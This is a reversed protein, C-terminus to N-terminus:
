AASSDNFQNSSTYNVPAVVLMSGQTSKKIGIVVVSEDPKLQAQCNPHIEAPWCSELFNVQGPRQPKIFQEVKAIGPQKFPNFTSILNM